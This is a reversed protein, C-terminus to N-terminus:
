KLVNLASRAFFASIEQLNWTSFVVYKATECSFQEANEANLLLLSVLLAFYM